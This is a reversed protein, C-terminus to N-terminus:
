LCMSIFKNILVRGPTTKIYVTSTKFAYNFYILFESYIKMTNGKCDIQIEECVQNKIDFEFFWNCKLWIQTHLNLQNQYYAQLLQDRTQFFYILKHLNIKNDQKYNFKNKQKITDLTTLYYCGLVMDQTPTIIPDGTAPSLINNRSGMLKWAESCAQTSLPIHVAMQDGDFDANFAMCVLPHLLIARGSILKPKFAQIGLRHLTPARNLLVPRNQMLEELVAWLKKPKAQIIKKAHIFNKALKKLILQRILFPQFLEIAMEKPLGCEYLKLQPGVVIVSRGSYDVRKGLLNQRFRGQKGKLMDSLSKFPRNNQALIANTDAKGNEILADVAEQLLRQAYRMEPFINFVSFDQNFRKVRENRFIVKQYLKTLDSVAVQETDLVVIPRLDPPLVPVVDLVMWDPKQTLFGRLLKLRRFRNLRLARLFTVKRVIKKISPNTILQYKSITLQSHKKIFLLRFKLFDEYYQIQNNLVKINETIHSIVLAVNCMNPRPKKKKVRYSTMSPVSVTGHSQSKNQSKVKALKAPTTPHPQAKPLTTKNVLGCLLLPNLFDDDYAIDYHYQSFNKLFNKIVAGGTIPLDFCVGREFYAPIITDNKHGPDTMYNLFNKGDVPFMWTFSQAVIYYRNLFYPQDKLLYNKLSKVFISFDSSFTPKKTTQVYNLLGSVDWQGTSFSTLTKELDTNNPKFYSSYLHRKLLVITQKLKAARPPTTPPPNTNTNTPVVGVGVGVGVGGVREQRNLCPGVTLALTCLNPKMQNQITTFQNVMRLFPQFTQKKTFAYIKYLYHKYQNNLRVKNHMGFKFQKPVFCRKGNPKPKQNCVCQRVWLTYNLPLNKFHILYVFNIQCLFTHIFNIQNYNIMEFSGPSHNGFWPNPNLFLANTLTSKPILKNVFNFFFRIQNSQNKYAMDAMLLNSPKNPLLYPLDNQFPQVSDIYITVMGKYNSVQNILNLSLQDLFAVYYKQYDLSWFFPTSLENSNQFHIPLSKKYSKKQKFLNGNSFKLFCYILQKKEHMIGKHISIKKNQYVFRCLENLNGHWTPTNCYFNFANTFVSQKKSIYPQYFLNHNTFCFSSLGPKAQKMKSLLLQKKITPLAKQILYTRFKKTGLPNKIKKRKQTNINVSYFWCSHSTFFSFKNQKLKLAIPYSQILFSFCILKTMATKLKFIETLFNQMTNQNLVFQKNNATLVFNQQCYRLPKLLPSLPVPSQSFQVKLEYDHHIQFEDSTAKQCDKQNESFNLTLFYNTLNSVSANIKRGKNQTKFFCDNLKNVADMRKPTIFNTIQNVNVKSGVISAAGGYVSGPRANIPKKTNTIQFLFLKKITIVNQLKNLFQYVNNTKKILTESHCIANFNTNQLFLFSTLNTKIKLFPTKVTNHQIPQNFGNRSAYALGFSFCCSRNIVGSRSYGFKEKNKLCARFNAVMPNLLTAPQQMLVPLMRYGHRFNSSLAVDVPDLVDCAFLSSGTLKKHAMNQLKHVQNLQTKLTNLFLGYVRKFLFDRGKLGLMVPLGKKPHNLKNYFQPKKYFNVEKRIQYYTKLHNKKWLTEDNLILQTLDFSIFFGKNQKCLNKKMKKNLSVNSNLKFLTSNLKSNFFRQNLFFNKSYFHYLPNSLQKSFKAKEFPNPLKLGCNLIRASVKKSFAVDENTFVNMKNIFIQNHSPNGISKLKRSHPLNMDVQSKSKLICHLLGMDVQNKNKLRCPHLPSKHLPYIGYAYTLQVRPINVPTQNTLVLHKQVWANNKIKHKLVGNFFLTQIKYINSFAMLKRHFKYLRVYRVPWDFSALNIFDMATSLLIQKNTKYVTQNQLLNPKSIKKQFFCPLVSSFFLANTSLNFNNLNMEDCFFGKQSIDHNLITKLFPNTNLSMLLFTNGVHNKKTLHPLATLGLSKFFFYANQNETNHTQESKKKIFIFEAWKDTLPIFTHNKFWKIKTQKIVSKKSHYAANNLFLLSFYYGKKFSNFDFHHRKVTQNLKKNTYIIDFIVNQKQFFLQHANFNFEFNNNKIIPYINKFTLDDPFSKVHTSIFELCYTIAELKKKKLNLLISIYSTSGKLYWIHTVPCILQIYALQGRRTQSNKRPGFIQECFLGGKEPQFTKYNFTKPNQIQFDDVNRTKSGPLTKSWQKISEPSALALKICQFKDFTTTKTLPSSLLKSRIKNVLIWNKTNM